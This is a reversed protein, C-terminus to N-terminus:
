ADAKSFTHLTIPNEPKMLSGAGLPAARRIAVEVTEREVGALASVLASRTQEMVAAAVIRGGPLLREWSQEVIAAVQTGGGGIFVRSPAALSPLVALIDGHVVRYDQCGAQAANRRIQECREPKAEVAEV